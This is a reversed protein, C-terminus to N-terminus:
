NTVLALSAKFYYCKYFLSPMTM